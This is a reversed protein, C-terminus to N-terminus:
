EQRDAAGPGAFGGKGLTQDGCGAAGAAVDGRGLGPIVLHAVADGLMLAVAAAVPGRDLGREVQGGGQGSGAGSSTTSISQAVSHSVM